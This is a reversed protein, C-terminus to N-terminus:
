QRDGSGTERVDVHLADGFTRAYRSRIYPAMATVNALPLTLNPMLYNMRSLDYKELVPFFEAVTESQLRYWNFVPCTDFIQRVANVGLTELIIRHNKSRSFSPRDSILARSTLFSLHQDLNALMTYPAGPLIIRRNDANDDAVMRNLADRLRATTAAFNEPSEAYAHLLAIALHGPERVWFDFRQLQWLSDVQRTEGDLLSTSPHGCHYIVVLLRAIHREFYRSHSPGLAMSSCRGELDICRDVSM